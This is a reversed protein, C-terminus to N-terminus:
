GGVKFMEVRKAPRKESLFRLESYRDERKRWVEAIREEPEKVGKLPHGEEAFLCTYLKGDASLRIRDCSRCFPMSVSAVIGFTGGDEYAFNVATDGPKGPLRRFSFAKRMKRLIEEASVVKERSWGNVTGVDMFEIFRLVVGKEKFYRALSVVEDDNLGRVVVANVKVTFGMEKAEEVAKLVEKLNVKRNVIRANKEPDLSHLSVTIRKLGAEKLSSLRKKLGVGNTTLAVDEIGETGVVVKVVEELDARLLPEGGTLRVKKVGLRAFAKVLKEIEEAKLLARGPLFRYNGDPPMCFSCRLNCRDTLSLRLVRLPRGLKDLLM